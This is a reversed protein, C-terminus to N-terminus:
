RAIRRIQILGKNAKTLVERENALGGAQENTRESEGLEAASQTSLLSQSKNLKVGDQALHNTLNSMEAEHRPRPKM